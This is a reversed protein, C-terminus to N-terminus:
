WETRDFTWKECTVIKTIDLRPRPDSEPLMNVLSWILSLVTM